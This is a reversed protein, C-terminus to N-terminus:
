GKCFNEDKNREGWNGKTVKEGELLLLNAAIRFWVFRLLGTAVHFGYQWGTDWGSVKCLAYHVMGDWGM